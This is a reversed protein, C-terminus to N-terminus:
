FHTDCALLDKDDDLVQQCGSEIGSGERRALDDLSESHTSQFTIISYTILSSLVLIFVAFLGFVGVKLRSDKKGLIKKNTM